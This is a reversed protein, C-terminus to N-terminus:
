ASRQLRVTGEAGDVEVVTGDALLSMADRVGFVAPVGMERAVVAAHCMAGGVEMVVAAVRPFLPTWGPDAFRVVIVDGPGVRRADPETLRRVPGIVRGASIPTGRLLGEEHAAEIREEVPVGDSRLFDPAPNARFDAYEAQRSEVRVRLDESVTGGRALAAVEEWAMFFVDEAREILGRAVFRCGLELAAMRMRQFVRMGYHKPAERLPMYLEVLRALAALWPRRWPPRSAIEEALVAGRKARLAEVRARVSEGPCRLHAAVLDVIMAPAECWRPAGLDFEKPARHGYTRLFTALEALWARGAESRALEALAEDASAAALVTARVPEAAEALREIALSTATTPGEIGASLLGLAAPSFRFARAALGHILIATTEMQLGDRLNRCAPADWLSMEEALEADTMALVSTRKRVAEADRELLRLARRPAVLSPFRRISAALSALWVLAFRGTSFGRRRPTLVGSDRLRHVTEGARADLHRMVAVTLPGLGPVGLLGSMNFYIRGQVLDLSALERFPARRLDIGLLQKLAMPAVIEKWVGWTLPHMPDPMTERVNCNSWVTIPGDDAGPASREVRYEPSSRWSTIPREQLWWLTGSADIAWELDLPRGERARFANAESAIAVADKEDLVPAASGVSLRPEWEGRGNRYVRWLEADAKGSVLADGSGAVAEVVVARDRGMPDLTFCVGAARAEVMQQAVVGVPIGSAGAYSAVRENSGSAICRGAAALAEDPTTVGLVTEFQGAFSRDASDEGAASSRVALRAGDLLVAAQALFREREAAPWEEPALTTTGCAFGRPVRAGAAILRALGAAKGGFEAEASPDFEHLPVLSPM